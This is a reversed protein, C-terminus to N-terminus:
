GATGDTTYLILGQLSQSVSGSAGTSCNLDLTVYKVARDDSLSVKTPIFSNFTVATPSATMSDILTAYTSYTGLAETALLLLQWHIAAANSAGFRVDTRLIKAGNPIKGLLIVDSLTGIKSAGSNFDWELHNVGIHVARAPSSMNLTYTMTTGAM